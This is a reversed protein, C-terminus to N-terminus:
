KSELKRRKSSTRSGEGNHSDTNPRRKGGTACPHIYYNKLPASWESKYMFVNRIKLPGPDSSQVEAAINEDFGECRLVACGSKLAGSEYMSKMLSQIVPAAHGDQVVTSELFADTFEDM